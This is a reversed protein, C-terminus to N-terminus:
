SVRRGGGWSHSIELTESARESAWERDDRTKNMRNETSRSMWHISSELQSLGVSFRCRFVHFLFSFVLSPFPSRSLLSLSLNDDVAVNYQLWFSATKTSSPVTLAMQVCTLWPVCVCVRNWVDFSHIVIYNNALLKVWVVVCLQVSYNTQSLRFPLEVLLFSPSFSFFLFSFIRLVLQLDLLACASFLTKWWFLLIM